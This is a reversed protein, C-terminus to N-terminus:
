FKVTAGANISRGTGPVPGITGGLAKWDAFDRGGLPDYYLKDLLNNVGLDFRLNQWEYSTRLNILAYASTLPEFRRVDVRDKEGVLQVEATSSWGGLKHTLAVRGNLPMMHYLAGGDTREGHVYGLTGTLAFAGIDHSRWLPAEGSVNVGYLQADHNAFRLKAFKNAGMTILGITDVDIFDEVFSYYPTVKIRWGPNMPARWDATFSVTNAVEPKLDLNGTYGNVDGFWGVMNMAMNGKGWAYREYLNPSRTKRGFALEFISSSDPQYRVMATADFNVDTREHDRANFLTAAAADAASMMSTWSYPQVNGTDMWVVDNRVGLLTTWARTWRSEWELFTGLRDRRGGNINWFAQPGMMCMMGGACTPNWWEDYRLAHLENGVRILSHAGVPIEVKIGYGFDKGDTYMPMGTTPSGGGKDDLFNMYHKVHNFYINADISGFGMRGKYRADIAKADNGLSSGASDGMDMRQNVFGQYPIQQLAAHVIFIDSGAKAALTVGHNWAEYDTSRVVLGDGGRKYDDASVWSGDYRVSFNGTAAEGAVSGGIGNGNSRYFTSASGSFRTKEGAAAFNPDAREVIVTSGLADGGKSVPSVGSTVEVSKVATPPAYSLPPNMHNACASTVEVGGIVVKVREDNLGNVVPLSSIGGAQYVAVGAVSTLQKALDSSAPLQTQIADSTVTTTSAPQALGSSVAGIATTPSEVPAPDAVVPPPVIPSSQSASSKVERRAKARSKPPTDDNASAQSAKKPAAPKESDAPQKQQVIVPPLKAGEPPQPSNATQADAASLSIGLAAASALAARVHHSM